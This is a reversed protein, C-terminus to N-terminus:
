HVEKSDGADRTLQVQQAKDRFWNSFSEIQQPPVLIGVQVRRIMKPPSPNSGPVEQTSGDPNRRYKLAGKEPVGTYEVFFDIRLDGRPTLGGFMGNAAVVHYNSDYEYEISIEQPETPKDAQAAM